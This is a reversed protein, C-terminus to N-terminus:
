LRWVRVVLEVLSGVSDQGPEIDDISITLPHKLM